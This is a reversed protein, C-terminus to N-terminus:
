QSTEAPLAAAPNPEPTTFRILEQKASLKREGDSVDFEETLVLGVGKAWYELVITPDYADGDPDFEGDPEAETAPEDDRLSVTELEGETYDIEFVICEFTGAPVTVKRADDIVTAPLGDDYEFTDGKKAPYFVLPYPPEGEDDVGKSVYAERGVDYYEWADYVDDDENRPAVIARLLGELPNKPAPGSVVRVKWKRYGNVVKEETIGIVDRDPAAGDTYTWQMVWRTGPRTPYFEEAPGRVPEEAVACPSVLLLWCPIVYRVTQRRRFRPDRSCSTCALM